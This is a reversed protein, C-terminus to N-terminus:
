LEKAAPAATAIADLLDTDSALPKLLTVVQPAAPLRDRVDPLLWGSVVVVGMRPCATLVERALLEGRLGPMALDTCLVDFAADTEAVARIRSLAENGNVAETVTHGAAELMRRFIARVCEDDDVLLVRVCRTATPPTPTSHM